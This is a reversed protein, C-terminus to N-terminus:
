DNRRAAFVAARFHQRPCDTPPVAQLEQQRLPGFKARGVRFLSAAQEIPRGGLPHPQQLLQCTRSAAIPVALLQLLIVTLLHAAVGVHWSNGMMRHRAREDAASVAPYDKPFGRLQEKVNPPIPKLIGDTTTMMSTDEYHWPAFQRSDQQWRQWAAPSTTHRARKPAPRGDDAPAPTTLCPLLITGDLVSPRWKLGGTDITGIQQHPTTIHLRRWHDCQQLKVNATDWNANSWWLRPRRIVGLDAADVMIPKCQLQESFHDIEDKAM